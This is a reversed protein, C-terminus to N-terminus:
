PENARRAARERHMVYLGALAIIAAGLLTYGDPLDGFAIFGFLTAWLLTTYNFPAVVSVPALGIARILCLQGLAGFVGALVLLAWGTGDPTVWQFPVLASSAVTGVVATYLLTTMPADHRALQRTCIQYLSFSLAAFVPLVVPSSLVDLSPRIIVMAGGFGVLVAAWRRPGVKEGLLPVSLATVLLPGIFVVATATVLPISRLALFFFGNAGLMFVSRLLQLGPRTSHLGSWGRPSLLALVFLFHFTFRAWVVQTVPYHATLYKATTDLSVFLLTAALMWLIGRRANGPAEGPTADNM